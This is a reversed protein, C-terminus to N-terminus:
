IRPAPGQRESAFRGIGRRVPGAAAAVAFRGPRPFFPLKGRTWLFVLALDVLAMTALARSRGDDPPSPLSVPAAQFSGDPLPVAAVPDGEDDAPAQEAVPAAVPAMATAEAAAVEVPPPSPDLPAPAVIEEATVTAVVVEPEEVTPVPDTAPPAYPADPTFVVLTGDDTPGFFVHFSADVVPVLVVDLVGNRVLPGAEFLLRKGDPSPIGPISASECDATPADALPGGDTASWASTAPCARVAPTGGNREVALAIGGPTAGPPVEFRLASVSFPGTRDGAVYLGGAPVAPNRVAVVGTQSKSWWGTASPRQAGSPVSVLALAGAILTVGIVGRPGRM